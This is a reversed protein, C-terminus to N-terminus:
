EHYYVRKVRHSINTLIEYPITGLAAAMNTIPYDPGFIIVEDGEKAPIDTIDIMCMDMCVNGVVPALKGNILVKGAGNGLRRSFGDAYGIAVTAILMNHRAIGKRSYGVTEKASVSKIQSITSKLTGVTLLNKQEIETPAVGYLGIGLRVMEFQAEPFRTIGASNLIHRLIPYNFHSLIRDSMKTFRAFQLRTFENHIVEDSAALHSFVSKITFMKNNRIRVILENIDDEEFGLRHM